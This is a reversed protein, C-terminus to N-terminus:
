RATEAKAGTLFDLSDQQPSATSHLLVPLHSMGQQSAKYTLVSAGYCGLTLSAKKPREAWGDALQVCDWSSCHLPYWWM